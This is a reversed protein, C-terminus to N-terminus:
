EQTHSCGPTDCVRGAGGIHSVSNECIPCKTVYVSGPANELQEIKRSQWLPVYQRLRSIINRRTAVDTRPICECPVKTENDNPINFIERVHCTHSDCGADNIDFGLIKM